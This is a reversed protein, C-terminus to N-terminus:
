DSRQIVTGAPASLAADPKPAVAHSAEPVALLQRLDDEILTEKQLLAQASEELVARGEKLIGLAKGFAEDAM